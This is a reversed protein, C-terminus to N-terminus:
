EPLDCAVENLRAWMRMAPSGETSHPENDTLADMAEDLLLLEEDSVTITHHRGTEINM